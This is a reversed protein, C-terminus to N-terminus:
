EGQWGRYAYDLIRPETLTSPAVDVVSAQRDAPFVTAASLVARDLFRLQSAMAADVDITPAGDASAAVFGWDGFSPVDVHYPVTLLGAERMSAEICWYAEPAFFPSGAQVVLQGDPALANAVLAYFEVSYLKATAVDDADPLDVVVADFRGPPERLWNFADATVVTLRPDRLADENLARLREDDRALRVMEPDLEVLTVREVDPYRLVERLALGDGGGLVLVDRRHGALAPHVLAEHYRYEDLSAFQLDGNLFLRLDNRGNFRVTETIVIDQYRSRVHTTIPDDFLAQRASVEFRQATAAVAVLTGLALAFTAGLGVAARRSVSRGFVVFVILAACGVNIMGVVLAGHLQGLRPLLLFPFALGGVLAGLYDAAFLDSAAEGAEQPRIRQLLRMLLPLEIGILMGLVASVAILPATYLALWAFAAYLVLVSVGGVVGLALEIAAFAVVTDGRLRKALLSGVGMACVMVGLVISTQQISAGLLFSGLSILALEYVLGCAAVVFVVALLASRAARPRVRRLPGDHVGPRATATM